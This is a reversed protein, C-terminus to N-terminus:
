FSPRSSTSPMNLLRTAELAVLGWEQENPHAGLNLFQALVAAACNQWHALSDHKRAIRRGDRGDRRRPAAGVDETPERRRDTRSGTRGETAEQRQEHRRKGRVGRDLDGSERSSAEGAPGARARVEGNPPKMNLNMPRGTTRRTMTQRSLPIPRQTLTTAGEDMEVSWDMGPMTSRATIVGTRGILLYLAANNYKAQGGIYRVRVGIKLQKM